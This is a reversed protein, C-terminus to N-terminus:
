AALLKRIFTATEETSDVAHTKAETKFVAEDNGLARLEDGVYLVDAEEIGLRKCLQRLGYAKDIGNKTVDITTAGGMAATYGAPLLPTIAKQLAQRKAHTPDWAKKELPPAKQGLASFTVQGGRYELQPGWTKAGPDIVGSEKAGERM